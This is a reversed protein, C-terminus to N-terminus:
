GGAKAELRSKIWDWVANSARGYYSSMAFIIASGNEGKTIGLKNSVEIATLPSSILWEGPRVEFHDGPFERKIAAGVATPNTVGFVVFIAM